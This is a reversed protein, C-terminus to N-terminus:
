RSGAGVFAAEATLMGTFLAAFQSFDALDVDGDNDLDARAFEVPDCGPDPVGSPGTYCRLLAAYDAEDVDGDNDIDGPGPRAETVTFAFQYGMLGDTTRYTPLDITYQESLPLEWVTGVAPADVIGDPVRILEVLYRRSSPPVSVGDGPSQVCRAAGAAFTVHM